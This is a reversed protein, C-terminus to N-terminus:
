TGEGSYRRVGPVSVGVTGTIRETRVRDVLRAEDYRPNLVVSSGAALPALLGYRLGVDSSFDLVSLVRDTGELLRSGAAVLEAATWTRGASHHVVLDSELAPTFVDAYGPIETAYDVVGPWQSLLGAGMPRLSLAVVDGAHVQASLRAEESFVVDADRRDFATAVGTAWCALLVVASQWHAPLDVRAVAGPAVGLGDVLFNATKAVWNAFTARSLEVREGTGDDYYTYLPRGPEEAVL